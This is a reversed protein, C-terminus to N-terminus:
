STITNHLSNIMDTLYANTNQDFVWFILTIESDNTTLASSAFPSSIGRQSPDMRINVTASLRRSAFTSLTEQLDCEM